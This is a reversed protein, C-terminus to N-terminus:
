RDHKQHKKTKRDQIEGLPYSESVRDSRCFRAGRNGFQDECDQPNVPRMDTVNPTSAQPTDHVRGAWTVSTALSLSIFLFTISRM